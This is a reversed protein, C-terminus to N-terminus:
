NKDRDSVNYLLDESMLVEKQLCGDRKGIEARHGLHSAASSF